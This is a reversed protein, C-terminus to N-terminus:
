NGTQLSTNRVAPQAKARLLEEIAALKNDREKDNAELNTLRKKLTANEEQLRTLAADRDQLKADLEQVAAATVIPIPDMRVSLLGDAGTDVFDPFVQQFEQAVVGFREYDATGGMKALFDADYHFRVPRLRELTALAGTVPRIDHKIREDSTTDWTSSFDSRAITGASKYALLAYGSAGITVFQANSENLFNACVESSGFRQVVLATNSAAPYKIGVRGNFSIGASTNGATLTGTVNASGAHVAGTLYTDTQTSGDGLRIINSEGAVGQSGVDINNNGTTLNYGAYNGLAINNAGTTNAFLSETGIATNNVGNSTSSPQNYFLAGLGVAVNSSDWSSGNNNFSQTFLASKGIAVNSGATTNNVLAQAGDATNSTGATNGKLAQYGSATNDAGTLTFNGATDGVFTNGDTLGGAGYGHLFATGGINLVGTSASTTLPLNLDGSLTLGSAGGHITGTLYTDTQTSGDGLRIVNSEGAVGPSGLDINNSGTTLNTGANYGLAVNFAGTTNHYLSSTGVATNNLGNSTSTPQNSYLAQYGLATNNTNWATGGNTFSQTQLAGSGMAVNQGANTSSGLALFGDATNNAGLKNATLASNGSATNNSGATDAFLAGEGLAANNSGSSNQSMALYGVATNSNGTLSFNGAGDGVFTNGDALGNHGFAHLFPAGGIDLVGTSASTTAPLNLDGSLTTTGALTLGTGSGHVTGTLYTDTQTSGDGLRIIGTEGAVGQSGIDINNSGTTLNYGANNGLGINNSGTTNGYLANGGLAVNALGNTTATPQNSYLAQYGVAVNLSNWATGSNAFSQLQLAGTGFAVNEGAATNSSLASNGVASNNGGFTNDLLAQFGAATNGNGATNSMLATAGTATNGSGSTDASLAQYGAGTNLSGSLTFNGANGGAFTNESSLGNAGYAHLFPAGGLELAGITASTTAPLDVGGAMLAYGSAALRQDPSLQQVGHTGDNFWVRLRVDTNTFVSLPLVSTMNAITTDGLLVSYLGNTVTLTVAHTPQGNTGDNSWLVAGSTQNVLAFEFQGSGNFNTTGVTIRGQYNLIQPVQAQARSALFLISLGCLLINKM